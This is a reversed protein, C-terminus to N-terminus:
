HIRLWRQLTLFVVMTAWLGLRRVRVLCLGRFFLDRSALAWLRFMIVLRSCLIGGLFSWLWGSSLCLCLPNSYNLRDLFGLVHLFWQFFRWRRGAFLDLLLLGLFRSWCLLLCRSSFIKCRRSRRGRRLSGCLTRGLRVLRLFYRVISWVLLLLHQFRFRLCRSGVVLFVYQVRLLFM